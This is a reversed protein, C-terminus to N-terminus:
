KTTHDLFTPYSFVCHSNTDNKMALTYKLVYIYCFNCINRVLHIFHFIHHLNDSKIKIENLAATIFFDSKSCFITISMFSCESGFM